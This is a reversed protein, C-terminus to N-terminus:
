SMELRWVIGVMNLSAQLVREKDALTRVENDRGGESM